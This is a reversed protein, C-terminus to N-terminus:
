VVASYYWRKRIIYATRLRGISYYHDDNNSGGEWRCVELWLIFKKWSCGIMKATRLSKKVKKLEEKSEEQHLGIYLYSTLLNYRWNLALLANNCILSTGNLVLLASNGNVKYLLLARRTRLPSQAAIVGKQREVSSLLIGHRPGGHELQDRYYYARLFLSFRLIRYFSYRM